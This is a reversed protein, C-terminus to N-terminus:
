LDVNTEPPHNKMFEERKSYYDTYTRENHIVNMFINSLKEVSEVFGRSAWIEYFKLAATTYVYFVYPRIDDPMVELAVEQFSKQSLEVSELHVQAFIHYINERRLIDLFEHNEKTVSFFNEAMQLVWFERCCYEKILYTEVIDKCIDAVVDEKSKYHNYFTRRAVDGCGCIESITIERFSNKTMLDQLTKKILKKTKDM